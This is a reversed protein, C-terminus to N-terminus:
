EATALREVLKGFAVKETNEVFRVHHAYRAGRQHRAVIMGKVRRDTTNPVLIEVTDAQIEYPRLFMFGGTSVDGSVQIRKGGAEIEFTHRMRRATRREDQPKSGANEAVFGNRVGYSVPIALSGGTVKRRSALGGANGHVDYM